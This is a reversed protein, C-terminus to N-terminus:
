GHITEKLGFGKIIEGEYDLWQQWREDVNEEEAYKRAFGIFMTYHNAESIMLKRYFQKL